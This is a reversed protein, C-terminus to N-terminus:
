TPTRDSLRALLTYPLHPWETYRATKQVSLVQGLGTMPRWCWQLAGRCWYSSTALCSCASVPAAPAHNSRRGRNTNAPGSVASPILDRNDPYNSSGRWSGSAAQTLQHVNAVGRPENLKAPV